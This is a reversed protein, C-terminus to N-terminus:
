NRRVRRARPAFISAGTRPRPSAPIRRRWGPAVARLARVRGSVSLSGRPARGRAVAGAHLVRRLCGAGTFFLSIVPSAAQVAGKTHSVNCKQLTPENPWFPGECANSGLIFALATAAETDPRLRNAGRRDRSASARADCSMNKVIDFLAGAKASVEAPLYALGAIAKADAPLTRRERSANRRGPQDEIPPRV